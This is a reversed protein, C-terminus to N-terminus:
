SIAVTRRSPLPTHNGRIRPCAAPLRFPRCNEQGSRFPPVIDSMFGAASWACCDPSCGRRGFAGSTAGVAAPGAAGLRRPLGEFLRPADLVASLPLALHVIRPTVGVIRFSAKSAASLRFIVKPSQSSSAMRAAAWACVDASLVCVDAPNGASRTGGARCFAKSWTTALSSAMSCSRFLPNKARSNWHCQILPM